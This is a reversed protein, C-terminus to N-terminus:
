LSTVTLVKFLDKMTHPSHKGVYFSRLVEVSALSFGDYFSESCGLSCSCIDINGRSIMFHGERRYIFEKSAYGRGKWRVLMTWCREGTKIRCKSEESKFCSTILLDLGVHIPHVEEREQLRHLSLDQIVVM